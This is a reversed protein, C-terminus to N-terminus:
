SHKATIVVLMRLNIRAFRIFQIVLNRRRRLTAATALPAAAIREMTSVDVSSRDVPQNNTM